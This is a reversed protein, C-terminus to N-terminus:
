KEELINKLVEAHSRRKKTATGILVVVEKAGYSDKFLDKAGKGAMEAQYGKAYREFPLHRDIYDKLLADSPAFRTDHVYPIGLITPIFYSFIV